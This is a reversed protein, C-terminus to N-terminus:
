VNEIEDGPSLTVIAKKYSSTGGPRMRRRQKPKSKVQLTNVKKVKINRESYISEIAEAIEAKNARQDVIFVYKPTKCRAVSRNSEASQLRGLMAAKETIYREKIIDYPNKM